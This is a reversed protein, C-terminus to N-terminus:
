LSDAEAFPDDNDFIASQAADPDLQVGMAEMIRRNIEDSSMSAVDLKSTSTTNVQKVDGYRKRNWKELLWQRTKIRLTSRQVDDLSATGDAKVGDSIRILEDEIAEAGIAKAVMYANKRKHDRYIWARFAATSIPEPTPTPYERIIRDLPEGNSTRELVVEFAFNFTQETLAHKARRHEENRRQVEKPDLYQLPNQPVLFSPLAVLDDLTFTNNM